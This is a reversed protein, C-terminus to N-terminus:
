KKLLKEYNRAKLKVLGQKSTNMYEPHNQTQPKEQTGM